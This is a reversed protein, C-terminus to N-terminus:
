LTYTAVGNRVSIGPNTLDIGELNLYRPMASDGVKCLVDEGNDHVTVAQAVYGRELM